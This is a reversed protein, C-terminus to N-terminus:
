PGLSCTALVRQGPVVTAACTGTVDPSGDSPSGVITVTQTGRALGVLPVLTGCASPRVRLPAEGEATVTLERLADCRLGLASAAAVPDVELAGKDTFASCAATVTVGTRPAATCTTGFVATSDGAAFALVGLVLTRDTAVDEILLPEGCTVTRTGSATTVEFHDVDGAGAGCATSGLALDPRLEVATVSSPRADVIPTCERIRRVLATRAMGKGCRTTWRPAVTEGTAIDRVPPPPGDFTVDVGPEHVILDDRDFGQIDVSYYHGATVRAFGVATGCSVPNSRRPFALETGPAGAVAPAGAGGGEGGAGGQGDDAGDVLEPGHDHLTAVYVQMSGPGLQCPVEALFDNPSVEILTPHVIEVSTLAEEECGAFVAALALLSLVNRPRRVTMIGAAM